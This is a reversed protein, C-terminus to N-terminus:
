NIPEVEHIVVQLCFLVGETRDAHEVVLILAEKEKRQDVRVARPSSFVKYLIM